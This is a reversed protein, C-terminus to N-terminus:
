LFRREDAEKAAAKIVSWPRDEGNHRYKWMYCARCLGKCFAPKWACRTCVLPQKRPRPM